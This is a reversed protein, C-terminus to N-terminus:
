LNNWYIIFVSIFAICIYALAMRRYLTFLRLDARLSLCIWEVLQNRETYADHCATSDAFFKKLFFNFTLTKVNKFTTINFTISM